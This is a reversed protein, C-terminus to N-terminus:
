KQFRRELSKLWEWKLQGSFTRLGPINASKKLTKSILALGERIAEHDIKHQPAGVDQRRAIPALPRASRAATAARRALHQNHEVAELIDVPKPFFRSTKVLDDCAEKFDKVTLDELARLYIATLQPTVSERYVTSFIVMAAAAVDPRDLLRETKQRTEKM